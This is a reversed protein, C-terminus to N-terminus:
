QRKVKTFPLNKVLPTLQTMGQHCLVIKLGVLSIETTQLQDLMNISFQLSM